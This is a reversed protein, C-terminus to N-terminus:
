LKLKGVRNGLIEVLFPNMVSKDQEKVGEWVRREAEERERRGGEGGRDGELGHEPVATCEGATRGESHASM